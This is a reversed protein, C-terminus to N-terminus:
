RVRPVRVVTTPPDVLGMGYEHVSAPGASRLGGAATWEAIEAAANTGKLALVVGGPRALPLTWALLQPLRAVARATVVDFAGAPADAARARLVHVRQGLSLQEIVETLFTARRLLPEVLTVRVDPRVLAWVLGPLGAGSGVDAVSAGAGLDETAEEAVVACNVLHRSWLRPVERPGILGREVGVGSLLLAYQALGQVDAYRRSLETERPVDNM